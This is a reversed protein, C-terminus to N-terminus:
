YKQQILRPDNLFILKLIVICLYPRIEIFIIYYPNKDKNQQGRHVISVPGLQFHISQSIQEEIGLALRTKLTKILNDSFELANM